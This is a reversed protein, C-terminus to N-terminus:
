GEARAKLMADAMIYAARALVEPHEASERLVLAGLAHAAFFDRLAMGEQANREETRGTADSRSAPRPFAPPNTERM